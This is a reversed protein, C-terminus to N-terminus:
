RRRLGSCPHSPAGAPIADESSSRHHHRAGGDRGDRGDTQGDTRRDTQGDTRRDTQGDTRRDVVPVEREAGRSPYAERSGCHHVGSGPCEGAKRQCYGDLALAEPTLGDVLSLTADRVSAYETAVSKLTRHEFGAAPVYTAESNSARPRRRTSGRLGSAAIPM